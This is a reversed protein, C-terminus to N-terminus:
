CFHPFLISVVPFRSQIFPIDHQCLTPVLTIIFQLNEKDVFVETDNNVLTENLQVVVDSIFELAPPVISALLDERSGSEDARSVPLFLRSIERMVRM